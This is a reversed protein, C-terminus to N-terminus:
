KRTQGDHSKHSVLNATEERSFTVSSSFTLSSIALWWDRSSCWKLLCGTFVNNAKFASTQYWWERRERGEKELCATLKLTQLLFQKQWWPQFRCFSWVISISVVAGETKTQLYLAVGRTKLFVVISSFYEADNQMLKSWLIQFYKRVYIFM